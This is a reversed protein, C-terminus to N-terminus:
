EKKKPAVAPKVPPSIRRSVPDANDAIQMRDVTTPGAEPAEGDEVYPEASGEGIRHAAFAVPVEHISGAEAHQVVGNEDKLQIDRLLKIKRTKATM